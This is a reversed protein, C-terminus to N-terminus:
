APNGLRVRASVQPDISALRDDDTRWTEDSAVYRVIDLRPDALANSVVALRYQHCNRLMAGYENATLQVDPGGSCGKVEVLYEVDNQTCVFDWGVNEKEVSLCDYGKSRYYSVVCEVAATEVKRRLLPDAPARSRSRAAPRGHSRVHARVKRVFEKADPRDLYRVTRGAHFSEGPRHPVPFVRADEDLLVCDRQKAEAIYPFPDRPRPERWVRANRYWGIIVTGAGPEPRTASFLVTVGDQYKADRAAGLRRMNLKPERGNRSRGPVRVYGRLRGNDGLFNDIEGGIGHQDVYRGGGVIRDTQTLGRYRRMWGVNFLIIPEMHNESHAHEEAGTHTAANM